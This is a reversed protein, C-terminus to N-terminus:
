KFNLEIKGTDCQININNDCNNNVKLAKHHKKGDVKFVGLDNKVNYNYLSKDEDINVEINGLNASLNTKGYLKGDVEINGIDSSGELRKNISSGQIVTNGINSYTEVFDAQLNKVKINGTDTEIQVNEISCDKSEVNGVDCAIDLNKAIINDVGVSAVDSIINIDEIISDKPVYINIYNRDEKNLNFNYNSNKNYTEQKLVFTENEVKYEVYTNKEQYRLDIEYKDSPIIKIDNVDVEIDINKFPKLEENKSITNVKPSDNMTFVVKNNLSFNGNIIYGAGTFICGVVIAVCSAKVLTKFRM